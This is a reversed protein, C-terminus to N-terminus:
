FVAKVTASKNPEHFSLFEKLSFDNFSTSESSAAGVLLQLNECRQSADEVEHTTVFAVYYSRAMKMLLPAILVSGRDATMNM